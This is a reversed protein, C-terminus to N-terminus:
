YLKPGTLMKSTASIKIRNGTHPENTWSREPYWYVPDNKLDM